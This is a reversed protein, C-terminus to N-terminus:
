FALCWRALFGSRPDDEDAAGPSPRGWAAARLGCPLSVECGPGVACAPGVDFAPGPWLGIRRRLNPGTAGRFSGHFELGPVLSALPHRIRESGVARARPVPTQSGWCALLRGPRVVARDSYAAGAWRVLGGCHISGLPGGELLAVREFGALAVEGPGFAFEFGALAANGPCHASQRGLYRVGDAFGYGLRWRPHSCAGCSM